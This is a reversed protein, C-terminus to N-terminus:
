LPLRWEHSLEVGCVGKPAGDKKAPEFTVEDFVRMAGFILDPDLNPTLLHFRGTKGAADVCMSFRVTGERGAALAGEPYSGAAPLHKLTPRDSEPLESVQPYAGHTYPMTTPTRAPPLEWAWTFTYNCVAVPKGDAEAPTFVAVASVWERTAKDLSIYGSPDILEVSHAKGSADVCTRVQIDAELQRILADRPYDPLVSRQVDVRPKRTITPDAVDLPTQAVAGFAGFAATLGMALLYRKM